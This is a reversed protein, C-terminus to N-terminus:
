RNSQFIVNNLLTITIDITIHIRFLLKSYNHPGWFTNPFEYIMHGLEKVEGHYLVKVQQVKTQYHAITM